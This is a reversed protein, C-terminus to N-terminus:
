AARALPAVGVAITPRGSARIQERRLVPVPVGSEITVEVLYAGVVTNDDVHRAALAQLEEAQEATVAVIAGTTRPAWGDPTLFVSHGEILDNATVIFLKQTNRAM